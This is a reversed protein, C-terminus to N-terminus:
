NTLKNKPPMHLANIKNSLEKIKVNFMQLDDTNIYSLDTAIWLQTYVEMLSGYSVELFRCRDKVSLRSVGEAINSVVSVAARRLQMVLVYKEDKPFNNTLKYIDKVFSRSLTWIELKEFSYQYM